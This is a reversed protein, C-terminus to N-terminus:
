NGDKLKCVLQLASCHLLSMLRVVLEQFMVVQQLRERAVFAKSKSEGFGSDLAM